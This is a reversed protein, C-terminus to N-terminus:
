HDEAKIDLRREIHRIGAPTFLVRGYEVRGHVPHDFGGRRVCMYPSARYRPAPLNAKDLVQAARLRRALTNRGINLLAAAEDLTYRVETTM